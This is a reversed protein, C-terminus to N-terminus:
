MTLANVGMDRLVCYIKNVPFAVISYFDGSFSKVLVAGRRMAGFSGALSLPEGTAVYQAIEEDTLDRFFVSGAGYDCVVNGTKTDIIAFGSVARVEKGSFARLTERAEKADRPKGICRGDFVLVTDGSIIIADHYHKAVVKAKECALFQVLEVPDACANMDEEYDSVVVDFNTIGIQKLLMKRHFSQSALIIHRNM